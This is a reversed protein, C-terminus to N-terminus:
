KDNILKKLGNYLSEENNEVIMGYTGNDLLEQMGSCLTTIVPTGVILAETVATSYGEYYSSCVFLDAKKVYKYPNEKYGLLTVKDGLNNNRIYKELEKRQNGEGLIYLHINKEKKVINNYIRLLRDYGKQQVLGGM